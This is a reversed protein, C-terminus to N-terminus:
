GPEHSAGDRTWAGASSSGIGELFEDRSKVVYLCLSLLGGIWMLDKVPLVCIM